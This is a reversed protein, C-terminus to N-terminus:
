LRKSIWSMRRLAFSLCADVDNSQVIKSTLEDYYRTVYQTARDLFQKRTIPIYPLMGDRSILVFHESAANAYIGGVSTM